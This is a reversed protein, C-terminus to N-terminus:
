TPDKENRQKEKRANMRRKHAKKERVERRIKWYTEASLDFPKPDLLYYVMGNIYKKDFYEQFDSFFEVKRTTKGGGRWEKYQHYILAAPIRTDGAKVGFEYIFKAADTLKGVDVQEKSGNIIKILEEAEIEHVLKKKM